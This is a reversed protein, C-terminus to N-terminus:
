VMSTISGNMCEVTLRAYRIGAQYVTNLFLDIKGEVEDKLTSLVTLKYGFSLTSKHTPAFLGVM